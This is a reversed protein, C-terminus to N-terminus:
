SSIMKKWEEQAKIKKYKIMIMYYYYYKNTGIKNVPKKLLIFHIMNTTAMMGCRMHMIHMGEQEQHGPQESLTKHSCRFFLQSMRKGGKM